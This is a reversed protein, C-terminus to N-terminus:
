NRGERGLNQEAVKGELKTLGNKLLVKGYSRGKRFQEPSEAPEASGEEAM